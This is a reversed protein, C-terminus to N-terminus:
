YDMRCKTMSRAISICDDYDLIWHNNNRNNEKISNRYISFAVIPTLLRWRSRWIKEIFNCDSYKKM